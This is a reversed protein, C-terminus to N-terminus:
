RLCTRWQGFVCDPENQISAAGTPLARLIAGFQCDPRGPATTAQWAWRKLMPSRFAHSRRAGHDRLGANCDTTARIGATVASRRSGDRERPADARMRAFWCPLWGDARLAFPAPRRWATTRHESHSANVFGGKAAPRHLTTVRRCRSTTIANARFCHSSAAAARCAASSAPPRRPHTSATSASTSTPRTGAPTGQHTTSGARRRRGHLRPQDLHRHRGANGPQPRGPQGTGAPHGVSAPAAACRRTATPGTDSEGLRIVFESVHGIQAM